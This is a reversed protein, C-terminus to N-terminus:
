LTAFTVIILMSNVRQSLELFIEAPLAIGFAHKSVLAAERKRSLLEM